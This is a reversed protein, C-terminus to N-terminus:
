RKRKKILIIFKQRQIILMWKEEPFDKFDKDFSKENYGEELSELRKRLAKEEKTEM